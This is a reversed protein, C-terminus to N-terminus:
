LGQPDGISCRLYLMCNYCNGIYDEDVRICSLMILTKIFIIDM